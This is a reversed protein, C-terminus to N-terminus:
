ELNDLDELPIENLVKKLSLPLDTPIHTVEKIQRAVGDFGYWIMKFIQSSLVDYVEKQKAAWREEEGDKYNDLEEEKITLEDKQAKLNDELTEIEARHSMSEVMERELLTSMRRLEIKQTELEAEVWELAATTEERREKKSSVCLELEEM